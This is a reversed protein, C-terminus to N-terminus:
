QSLLNNPLNPDFLTAGVIRGFGGGQTSELRVGNSQSNIWDLYNEYNSYEMILNCETYSTPHAAIWQLITSISTYMTATLLDKTNTDQCVFLDGLFDTTEVALFLIQTTPVGGALLEYDWDALATVQVGSFDM